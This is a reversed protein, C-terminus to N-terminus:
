AAAAPPAQEATVSLQEEARAQDAGPLAPARSLYRHGTPTTILVDPAHPPRAAETGGALPAPPHGHAPLPTEHWGPAEKAYNCRECLGQLNDASTPGGEAHPTIHDIQRIPADCWPTRCAGDRARILDALADPALRARSDMAVLQGTGPATFLRRVWVRARRSRGADTRDPGLGPLGPPSSRSLEPKRTPRDLRAGSAEPRPRDAHRRGLSDLVLNRAWPGPVTGYGPIHAPEDDGALLTRDTMVLQVELRASVADGSVAGGAAIRTVLEDAMVQGRPRPDGAARAADAARTLAAYVGVGQAVPLLATLYTMTDPAPRLTVCRESEARRACAVVSAVDLRQAVAKARAVLARDGVGDLASLDGAIERDLAARDEHSLCASERVLLTARWESLAGAELAALTCPMETVLARALGLCQGGRHPSERRALAVQAAVGVGLREGPVGAARQLARQSGDLEISVRAQRASAASKLRELACILDIRASDDLDSPAGALAAVWGNVTVADVCAVTRAAVTGPSACVAAGSSGLSTPTARSDFM